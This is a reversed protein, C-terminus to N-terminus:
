LVLFSIKHLPAWEGFGSCMLQIELDGTHLKM